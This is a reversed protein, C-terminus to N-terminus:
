GSEWDAEMSRQRYFEGVWRRMTELVEGMVKGGEASAEANAMNFDNCHAAGPLVWVPAEETSRLPGGPRYDSSVSASRWPDHQGNVWMLRTTNGVADWGGTWENFREVTRGADLGVRGPFRDRCQQRRYDLNFFKSVLRFADQPGSVQAWELPENCLLWLWQRNYSNNVAVQSDAPAPTDNRSSPGDRSRSWKMYGALAKDTGVGEPGPVSGDENAPVVNELYDCFRYVPNVVGNDHLETDQWRLLPQAIWDGFVDNRVTGDFGFDTKLAAQAEETGNSLVGDIHEVAKRLDRSCNAPLAEQIPQFYQWFDSIAQVPACSSYYAWFTGPAFRQVWYALSGAYSCGALVWPARGPGSAGGKDFPLQVNRAFYVLDQVSNNVSLYRLNPLTLDQFPASDGYYRHQLSIVAASNAKGFRGPLATDLVLGSTDHAEQPASVIIPSGPGAYFETNYWYLQSFSGLGPNSHDILQQFTANLLHM